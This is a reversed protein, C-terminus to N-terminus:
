RIINPPIEDTNAPWKWEEYYQWSMEQNHKKMELYKDRLAVRLVDGSSLIGLFEGEKQILLHRIRLGLIKDMLQVCNESHRAYHLDTTMHNKIVASYLDLDPGAMIRLLDRETWIGTVKDGEKVLLAGVRQDAMYKVAQKLTLSPPAFVHARKNIKLIEEATDIM